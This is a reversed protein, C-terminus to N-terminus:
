RGQSLSANPSASYHCDIRVIIYRPSFVGLLRHDILVVERNTCYKGSSVVTSSPFLEKFLCCMTASENHVLAQVQVNHFPYQRSTIVQRVRADSSSRISTM